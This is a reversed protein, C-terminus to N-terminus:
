VLWTESHLKKSEKRLREILKILKNKQTKDLCNLEVIDETNSGYLEFEKLFQHFCGDCYIGKEKVLVEHCYQWKYIPMVKLFDFRIKTESKYYIYDTNKYKM